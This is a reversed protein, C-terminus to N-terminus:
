GADRSGSNGRANGREGPDDDAGGAEDGGADGAGGGADDAGGGADDADGGDPNGGGRDDGGQHGQGGGNGPASANRGGDSRNGSQSRSQDPDGPGNRDAANTASSGNGRGPADAGSGDPPGRTRNGPPGFGAGVPGAIERAIAAVESGTVADAERQLSRLATVNVGNRRLADPPLGEAATSTRDAVRRVAVLEARLRTVRVRYESAEISGNARAAELRWSEARLAALRGRSQNAQRAIVAARVDTSGSRNLQHGLSRSELEGGLEAGQVGVAGALRTGPATGTDGDATGNTQAATTGTTGRDSAPDAAVTSGADAMGFAPLAVGALVVLVVVAVTGTRRMEDRRYPPTGKYM